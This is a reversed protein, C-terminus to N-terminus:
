QAIEACLRKCSTKQVTEQVSNAERPGGIVGFLMRFPTNVSIHIALRSLRCPPMDLSPNSSLHSLVFTLPPMDSSPVSSLHSLMHLPVTLDLHAALSALCIFLRVAMKCPRTCFSAIPRRYQLIRHWKHRCTVLRVYLWTLFANTFAHSSAFTCGSASADAALMLLAPNFPFTAPAAPNCPGM